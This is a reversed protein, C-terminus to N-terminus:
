VRFNNRKYENVRNMVHRLRFLLVPYGAIETLFRGIMRTLGIGRSYEQLLEEGQGGYGNFRGFCLFKDLLPSRRAIAALENERKGIRSSGNPFSPTLVWNFNLNKEELAHVEHFWYRPLFVMDGPRTVFECFDYKGPDYDFGRPPMGVNTFPVSPLPTDPSVIIWRKSGQVQLNFGHLSNGDFHPLTTHRGPQLFLRMPEACLRIDSRALTLKVLLPIKIADNDVLGSVVWGPRRSSESLFTTKIYDVNVISADPIKVDRILVPKEPLLYEAVFREHSLTCNAVTDIDLKSTGRVPETSKTAFRLLKM